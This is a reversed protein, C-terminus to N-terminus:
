PFGISAGKGTRGAADAAGTGADDLRGELFFCFRVEEAFLGNEAATDALENGVPEFRQAFCAVLRFDGIKFREVFHLHDYVEHVFAAHGLHAIGDAIRRFIAIVRCARPDDAISRFLSHFVHQVIDLVSRKGFVPEQFIFSGAPGMEQSHAALM